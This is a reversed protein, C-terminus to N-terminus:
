VLPLTTSSTLLWCFFYFATVEAKRKVTLWTPSLFCLFFFLVCFLSTSLGFCLFFLGVYLVTCVAELEWVHFGRFFSVHWMGFFSGMLSSWLSLRVQRRIEVFDLYNLFASLLLHIGVGVIKGFSSKKASGIKKIREQNRLNKYNKYKITQGRTCERHVLTNWRKKIDIFKKSILFFLRALVEGEVWWWNWVSYLSFFAM